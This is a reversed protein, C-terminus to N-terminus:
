YGLDDRGLAMQIHKGNQIDIDALGLLMIFWSLM